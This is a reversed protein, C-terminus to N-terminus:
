QQNHREDGVCRYTSKGSGESITFDCIRITLKRENGRYRVILYVYGHEGKVTLYCGRRLGKVVKLSPEMLRTVYDIVVNAFDSVPVASAYAVAKSNIKISARTDRIDVLRMLYWSPVEIKNRTFSAQPPYKRACNIILGIRLAM